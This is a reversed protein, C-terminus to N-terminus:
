KDQYNFLHRSWQLVRLKFPFIYSTLGENQSAIVCSWGNVHTQSLMRYFPGPTRDRVCRLRIQVCIAVLISTLDKKKHQSIALSFWLSLSLSLSLSSSFSSSSSSSLFFSLFLFSSLSSAYLNFFFYLYFFFSFLLIFQLFFSLFFFFFFYPTPHRVQHQSSVSIPRM